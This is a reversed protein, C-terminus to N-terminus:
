GCKEERTTVQHDIASLDPRKKQEARGIRLATERTSYRGLEVLKGAPNRVRLKWLGNRSDLSVCVGEKRKPAEKQSFIRSASGHRDFDQRRLTLTNGSVECPRLYCCSEFDPCYVAMIDFADDQRKGYHVGHRDAWSNRTHVCVAGRSDAQRYKVSIRSLTGSPSIAICDFPLHECLPIAIKFGAKMCEAIVSGLGQDGKDKTHHSIMAM